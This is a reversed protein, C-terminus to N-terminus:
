CSQFAFWFTTYVKCLGKKTNVSWTIWFIERCHHHFSPDDGSRIHVPAYSSFRLIVRPDISPTRSYRSISSSRTLPKKLCSEFLTTLTPNTSSVIIIWCLNERYVFCSAEDNRQKYREITEQHERVRSQKDSSCSIFHPPFFAFSCYSRASSLEREKITHSPCRFKQM